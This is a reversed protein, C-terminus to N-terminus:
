FAPHGSKERVHKGQMPEEDERASLGHPEGEGREAVGLRLRTTAGIGKKGGGVQAVSEEQLAQMSRTCLRLRTKLRALSTRAASLLAEARQRHLREFLAERRAAAAGDAGAAAAVEAVAPALAAVSVSPEQEGNTGSGNLVARKGGTAGHRGNAVAGRRAPCPPMAGSGIGGPMGRRAGRNAAVRLRRAGAAANATM